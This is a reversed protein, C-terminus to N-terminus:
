EEGDDEAGRAEEAESARRPDAARRPSGVVEDISGKM